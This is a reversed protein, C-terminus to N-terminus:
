GELAWRGDPERCATGEVTRTYAGSTLTLMLQRCVDGDANRFSFMPRVIGSLRGHARRWVFSTGDPIETLGILVAHLAATEDSGDLSLKEPSEARLHLEPQGPCACAPGSNRSAEGGYASGVFLVPAFLALACLIARLVARDPHRM